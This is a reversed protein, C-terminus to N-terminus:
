RDEWNLPLGHLRVRYLCTHDSGHNTRVRVLFRNTYHLLGHQNVNLNFRQVHDVEVEERAHNRGRMSDKNNRSAQGYTEDASMVYESGSGAKNTDSVASIAYTATGIRAWTKAGASSDTSPFFNDASSEDILDQVHLKTWEQYSLDAFDAWLEIDRPATGPELSASSPFHEVVLETPYIHQSTQIALRMSDQHISPAQPKASNPSPRPVSAACWRDGEDHWTELATVPPPSITKRLGLMRLGVKYPLWHRQTLTPSTLSPIIIAGSSPSFFNMKKILPSAVDHSSASLATPHHQENLRNIQLELAAQHSRLAAADASTSALSTDIRSNLRTEIQSIQSQTQRLASLLANMDNPSAHTLNWTSLQPLKSTRCQGCLQQLTQSVISTSAADCTRTFITCFALGSIGFVAIMFVTKFLASTIPSDPIELISKQMMHIMRSIWQWIANFASRTLRVFAMLKRQCASYARSGLSVHRQASLTQTQREPPQQPVTNPRIEPEPQPLNPRRLGREYNYSHDLSGTPLSSPESGARDVHPTQPQSEPSDHRTEEEPIDDLQSDDIWAATRNQKRVNDPTPSTIPRQPAEKSARRQARDARAVKQSEPSHSRLEAAHAEFNREAEDVAANLRNEVARRKM